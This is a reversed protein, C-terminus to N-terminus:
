CVNKTRRKATITHRCSSFCFVIFRAAPFLSYSLNEYSVERGKQGSPVVPRTALFKAEM